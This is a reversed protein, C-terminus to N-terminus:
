LTMQYWLLIKNIVAAAAAAAAENMSKSTRVV